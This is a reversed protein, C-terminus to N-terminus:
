RNKRNIFFRIIRKQLFNTAFGAGLQLLSSKALNKTDGVLGNTEMKIDGAAFRLKHRINEKTLKIENFTKISELRM